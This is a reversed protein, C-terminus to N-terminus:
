RAEPDYNMVYTDKRVRTEMCKMKTEMGEPMGSIGSINWEM